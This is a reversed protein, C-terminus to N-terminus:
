GTQPIVVCSLRSGVSAILLTVLLVNYFLTSSHCENLRPLITIGFSLLDWSTRAGAVFPIILRRGTDILLLPLILCLVNANYCCLHPMPSSNQRDETKSVFFEPLFAMKSITVMLYKDSQTQVAAYVTYLFDQTHDYWGQYPYSYLLFQTNLLLFPKLGFLSWNKYTSFTKFFLSPLVHVLFWLFYNVRCLTLIQHNRLTRKLDTVKHYHLKPKAHM